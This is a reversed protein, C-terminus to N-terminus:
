IIVYTYLTTAVGVSFPTGSGGLGGLRAWLGTARERLQMSAIPQTPHRGVGGLARHRPKAGRRAAWRWGVVSARNPAVWRWGVALALCQVLVQEISCSNMHVHLCRNMHESTLLLVIRFALLRPSPAGRAARDLAPPAALLKKNKCAM